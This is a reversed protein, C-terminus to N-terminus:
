NKSCRLLSKLENRFRSGVVCYLIGNIGHNSYQIALLSKFILIPITSNPWVANAILIPSTLIIFVFSVTLLLVISTSASKSLAQSTSDTNGQRNKWKVRVFKYIIALNSLVMLGFPVYSYMTAVIISFLTSLYERSANGYHCYKGVSDEYKKTIFFFQLNFAVFIVGSVLSIRRATRVTCIAKTKFPFYLAFCKEVSIIVLLASSYTVGFYLLFYGFGCGTWM